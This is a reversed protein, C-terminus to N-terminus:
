QGCLASLERLPDIPKTQGAPNLAAAIM